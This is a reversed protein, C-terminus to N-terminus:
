KQAYKKFKDKAATLTNLPNETAIKIVWDPINGSAILILDLDCKYIKGLKHALEMSPSRSGTEIQSIYSESVGVLHSLQKITYGTKLRLERLM